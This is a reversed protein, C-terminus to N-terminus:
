GRLIQITHQVGEGLSYNAKWGMKLMKDGCLVAKTAKSYGVAEDQEPIEFVVKKGAKCAMMEALNALTIDSDKGVINYAEGDQGKALLAMIADVVDAVYVYSFFQQGESKLVIDEGTVAKKIFQSLAKSDEELLGPGYCRAVRPIICTLHHEKRYAQCLAEGVRKGEPYGARLTNSDIYGCYDETFKEVDGRNEGYVEVSSMYMYCKCKHEVAFRLTNNTGLTNTLITEVPKEAYYLPHTNSAGHIFYDIDENIAIGEENIDARILRFYKSELYKAFRRKAEAEKRVIAYIKCQLGENANAYMVADIFESGILGRAGTIVITKGALEQIYKNKSLRILEAIYLEHDYFKM